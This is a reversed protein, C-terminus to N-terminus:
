SAKAVHTVLQVPLRCVFFTNVSPPVWGSSVLGKGSAKDKRLWQEPGQSGQEPGPLVGRCQQQDVEKAISRVHKVHESTNYIEFIDVRFM